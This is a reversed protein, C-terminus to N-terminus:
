TKARFVGHKVEDAREIPHGNYSMVRGERDVTEGGIIDRAEQENLDTLDATTFLLQIGHVTPKGNRLVQLGISEIRLGDLNAQLCARSTVWVSGNSELVEYGNFLAEDVGYEGRLEEAIKKKERNNLIRLNM